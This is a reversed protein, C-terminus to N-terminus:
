HTASYKQAHTRAPIDMPGRLSEDSRQGLNGSRYVTGTFFQRKQLIMSPLM